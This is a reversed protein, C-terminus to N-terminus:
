LGVTVYAPAAMSGTYGTETTLVGGNAVRKHGNAVDITPGSDMAFEQSDGVGTRRLYKGSSLVIGKALTLLSGAKSFKALAPNATAQKFVFVRYTQSHAPCAVNSSYTTERLYVGSTTAFVSVNRRYAGASEQIIQGPTVVKGAITVKVRPIYGLGHTLLLIDTTRADGYVIFTISGIGTTVSAAALSTHSITVDTPAVVLEFQDFASHWTVASLHSLPTKMPANRPANIDLESGTTNPEEFCAVTSGIGRFVKRGL